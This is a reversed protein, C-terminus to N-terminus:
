RRGWEALAIGGLVLALAVAHYLHFVEGLVLVALFAGYVPVLNVFLGARGPGILEVGRMILTNGIIGFVGGYVVAFWGIWNPWRLAGSAAEYAFLPISTVSAIVSFAFYLFLHSVPPKERLGVIFAAYCICSAFAYIDGINLALGAIVGFEGKGAVIVVGVMTVAAGVM